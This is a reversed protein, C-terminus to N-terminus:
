VLDQKASYCCLWGARLSPSLGWKPFSVLHNLWGLVSFNISLERGLVVFKLWNTM